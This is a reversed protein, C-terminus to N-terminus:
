HKIVEPSYKILQKNRIKKAMGFFSHAKAIFMKPIPNTLIQSICASYHEQKFYSSSRDEEKGHLVWVTVSYTHLVLIYTNVYIRSETHQQQLKIFLFVNQRAQDIKLKFLYIFQDVQWPSDDILIVTDQAMTSIIYQMYKEIVTEVDESFRRFEFGYRENTWTHMQIHQQKKKEANVFSFVLTSESIRIRFGKQIRIRFGKSIAAVNTYSSM